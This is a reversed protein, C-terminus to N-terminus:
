NSAKWSFAGIPIFGPRGYFDLGCRSAPIGTLIRCAPLIPEAGAPMGLRHFFRWAFRVYPLTSAILLINHDLIEGICWEGRAPRQWIQDESLGSLSAFMTERQEDLVDLYTPIVCPITM